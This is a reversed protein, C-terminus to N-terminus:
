PCQKQPCQSQRPSPTKEKCFGWHKHPNWPHLAFLCPAGNKMDKREVRARNKIWKRSVYGLTFYQKRSCHNWPRFAWIKKNDRHKWTGNLYEPWICGDKRNPSCPRYLLKNCLQKCIQLMIQLYLSQCLSWNTISYYYGLFHHYLSVCHFGMSSWDM